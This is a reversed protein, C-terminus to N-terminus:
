RRSNQFLLFSAYLVTVGLVFRWLSNRIRVKMVGLDAVAGDPWGLEEVMDEAYLAFAYQIGSPAAILVSIAVSHWRNFWPVVPEEWVRGCGADAAGNPAM